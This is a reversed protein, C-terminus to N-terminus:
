QSLCPQKALGHDTHFHEHFRLIRALQFPGRFAMEDLEGAYFGYGQAHRREHLWANLHDARRKTGFALRWGPPSLLVGGASGVGEVGEWPVCLGKHINKCRRAAAEHSRAQFVLLPCRNVPTRTASVTKGIGRIRAASRELTTTQRCIPAETSRLM